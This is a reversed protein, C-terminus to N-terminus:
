RTSSASSRLTSTWSPPSSWDPTSLRNSDHQAAHRFVTSRSSAAWSANRAAQSSASITGDLAAQLVRRPELEVLGPQRGRDGLLELAVRLRQRAVRESGLVAVGDLRVAIAERRDVLQERLEVRRGVRLERQQTSSSSDSGASFIATNAVKPSVTLYRSSCRGSRTPPRSRTATTPESVSGSWRM